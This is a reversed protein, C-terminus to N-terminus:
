SPAQRRRLSGVQLLVVAFLVLGAGAIQAGGPPDHLILFALLGAVVPELTAMMSAVGADLHRLSVTYAAVPLLTQVTGLMVLVTWVPLRAGPALLDAPAQVLLLLFLGAAGIALTYFLLTPLPLRRRHALKGFISYLAYTAASVLGWGIGIASGGLQAPNTAGAILVVGGFTLLLALGKLRTLSEGLFRWALLTVIAPATYLLVVATTVGTLLIAYLYAVYFLTVGLVGYGLVLWSDGARLRLLRPQRVAILVGITLAGFLARYFVVTLPPLAYTDITLTYVTGLTGWLTAALLVLGVGLLPRRIEGTDAPLEIKAPEVPRRGTASVDIQAMPGM